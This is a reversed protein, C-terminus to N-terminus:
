PTVAREEEALRRALARLGRHALVRVTGPRKGMINAVQVVDLGAVARLTVAEAQETPLSAVLALARETALAALTQEVPDSETDAIAAAGLALPEVPVTPRRAERRFHDIARRRALTFLWARFAPEDGDFRNISTAVAVWTDSAVDEAAGRAVVGLYRLLLPQYETWIVAFASEDGSRTRELVSPFSSGIV